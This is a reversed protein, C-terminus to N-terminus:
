GSLSTFSPPPLYQYVSFHSAASESPQFSQLSRESNGAGAQNNITTTVIDTDNNGPAEKEENNGGINTSSGPGATSGGGKDGGSGGAATNLNLQSKSEVLGPTSRSRGM